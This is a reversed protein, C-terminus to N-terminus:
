FDFQGGIKILRGGLVATPRLWAAGFTSNVGLITRANFLNYLDFNGQVRGHGIRVIKTLRLDVQTLRKEFQTFPTLLDVTTTTGGSLPRGLSPAIVASPAAWSAQIAPGPLNQLVASMQVGYPLPYIASAKLQAQGKFPITTQCQNAPLFRVPAPVFSVSNTVGPRPAQPNAGLGTLCDNFKTQGAAVGGQLLGGTGFRARLAVDFGNYVQTMSGFNKAATVLNDVQGFKSPNLDFLGCLQNGGGGPLRSDSPVALCYPDYDSAKVARNTTIPFNGYWTRYYGGNVALNPRLEHQFTADAEWNYPRVFSGSLFAPDYTTTPITKGLNLNSIQGCEANALPNTLDCDPAYNGNTDTWVRSATTTIRYAANSENAISFTNNRVYRGVAAKFATKGNGFVDYAVGLRPSIDKWTPVSQVAAFNRAPVFPGAAINFAPNAANLYDFRAGMNLTLRKLTWQDQAYIGLNAKLRSEYHQPMAWEQVGSPVGLRFQYEIPSIDYTYDQWGQQHHVGAKFAHSGTVYSVAFRENMISNYFTGYALFNPGMSGGYANYRLGTGVDTIPIDGVKVDHRPVYDYGHTGEVGAEFLLRNTKPYNWTGLVVLPRYTIHGTAEPSSASSVGIYCNCDRQFSVYGAIKQKSSAQWTVRGSYDENPLWSYAPRSKDPVYLLGGLAAPDTRNQYFAGPAYNQAGWLRFSGYFWATDQKIPGGVGAGWDYVKKVSPATTLGRAILADTLTKNQMSSNAGTAALSYSFKNGGDRLVHNMQVGGSEGEASIGRTTLSVEQIAMQSIWVISGGNGAGFGDIIMGDLTVKTDSGSAGHMGFTGASEGKDGGVDQSGLGRTAGLTLATYGALSNNTPLADLVRRTLVSQTRSNQVDVVPSAGTVTVTEELSGVKMDANINATVGTTLELGDRKFTGFGVLTFTVSYTGPRLDVIKYQGQSDSVVTRVKEILAPSAAEVTVGPLVAGTADKVVGAITGSLAQARAAPVALTFVTFGVLCSVQVLRVVLEKMPEM